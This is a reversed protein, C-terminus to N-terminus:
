SNWVHESSKQEPLGTKWFKLKETTKKTLILSSLEDLRISKEHCTHKKTNM